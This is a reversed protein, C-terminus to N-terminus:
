STDSHFRLKRNTFRMSLGTICLVIENRHLPRDFQSEDFRTTYLLRPLSRRSTEIENRRMLLILELPIKVVRRFSITLPPPPPDLRHHSM